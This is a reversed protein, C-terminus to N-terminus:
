QNHEVISLEEYDDPDGTRRLYEKGGDVACSGCKCWKFDHVTVSEIIDGCKLCKIQNKIIKDYLM